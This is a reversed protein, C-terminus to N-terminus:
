VYEVHGILPSQQTGESCTVIIYLGNTTAMGSASLRSCEARAPVFVYAIPQDIGLIPATAKDYFAVILAVPNKTGFDYGLLGGAAGKIQLPTTGTINVPAVLSAM